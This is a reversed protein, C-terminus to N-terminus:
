FLIPYANKAWTEVIVQFEQAKRVIEEAETEMAVSSTMYAIVNRSRRGADFYHSLAIAKAGISLETAEFTV